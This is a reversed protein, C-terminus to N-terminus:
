RRRKGKRRTKQNLKGKPNAFDNACFTNYKWTSWLLEQLSWIFHTISFSTLKVMNPHSYISSVQMQINMNKQPTNQQRPTWWKSATVFCCKQKNDSGDRRHVFEFLIEFRSSINLLLLKWNEVEANEISKEVYRLCLALYVIFLSSFRPPFFWGRSHQCFFSNYADFVFDLTTWENICDCRHWNGGPQRLLRLLFM